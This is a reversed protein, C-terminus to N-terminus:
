VLAAVAVLYVSSLRDPTDGADGTLGELVEPSVLYSTAPAQLTRETCNRERRTAALRM